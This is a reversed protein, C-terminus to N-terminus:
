RGAKKRATLKPRRRKGPVIASREEFAPDVEFPELDPAKAKAPRRRAPAPARDTRAALRAAKEEPSM